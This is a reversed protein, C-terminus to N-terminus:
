FHITFKTQKFYYPAFTVRFIRCISPFLINFIYVQRKSVIKDLLLIYKLNVNHLYFQIIIIILYSKYSKERVFSKFGTYIHKKKELRKVKLNIAYDPRYTMSM